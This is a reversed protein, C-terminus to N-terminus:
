RKIKAQRGKYDVVILEGAENVWVDDVAGFVHLNTPEHLAVVGTFTYRWDDLDKHAFPLVGTLKNKIM